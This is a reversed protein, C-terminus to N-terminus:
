RDDEDHEVDWMRVGIGAPFLREDRSLSELISLLEGRSFMENPTATLLDRFYCLFAAAGVAALGDLIPIHDGVRAHPLPLKELAQGIAIYEAGLQSATM